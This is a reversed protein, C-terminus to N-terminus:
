SPQVTMDKLIRHAEIYAETAIQVAEQVSLGSNSAILNCAAICIESAVFKREDKHPRVGEGVQIAM